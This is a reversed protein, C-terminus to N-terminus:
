THASINDPRRAVLKVRAVNTGNNFNDARDSVCLYPKRADVRVATNDNNGGAVSWLLTM